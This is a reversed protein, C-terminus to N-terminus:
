STDASAARTLAPAYLAEAIPACVVLGAGHPGRHLRHLCLRMAPAMDRLTAVLRRAREALAGRHDARAYRRMLGTFAHTSRFGPPANAPALQEARGRPSWRAAARVFVLM